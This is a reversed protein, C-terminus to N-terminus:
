KKRKLAFQLYKAFTFQNTGIFFFKSLQNYKCVKNLNTISVVFSHLSLFLFLFSYFFLPALFILWLMYRVLDCFWMFGSLASSVLHTFRACDAIPTSINVCCLVLPLWCLDIFKIVWKIHIAGCQFPDFASVFRLMFFNWKIWLIFLWRSHYINQEPVFFSHIWM